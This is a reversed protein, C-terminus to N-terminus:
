RIASTQENRLSPCKPQDGKSAATSLGGTLRHICMRRPVCTETRNLKWWLRQWVRYSHRGLLQWVTDAHSSDTRRTRAVPYHRHKITNRFHSYPPKKMSLRGDSTSSAPRGEMQRRDNKYKRHANDLEKAWKVIGDKAEKHHLQLNRRRYQTCCSINLM